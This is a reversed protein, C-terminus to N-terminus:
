ILISINVYTCIHNEYFTLLTFFYKLWLLWHYKTKLADLTKASPSRIEIKRWTEEVHSLCSYAACEALITKSNTNWRLATTIILSVEAPKNAVGIPM